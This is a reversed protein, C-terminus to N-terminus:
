VPRTADRSPLNPLAHVKACPSPSSRRRACRLMGVRALNSRPAPALECRRGARQKCVWTKDRAHGSRKRAGVHMFAQRMGQAFAAEAAAGRQSREKFAAAPRAAAAAAPSAAAAAAVPIAAAAAAVASSTPAMCAGIGRHASLTVLSRCVLGVVLEVLLHEVGGFCCLDRKVFSNCRLPLVFLCRLPPEAVGGSGPGGAMGCRSPPWPLPIQCVKGSQRSCSRHTVAAGAPSPWAGWLKLPIPAGASGAAAPCVARVASVAPLAASSVFCNLEAGCGGVSLLLQVRLM